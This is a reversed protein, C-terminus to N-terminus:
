DRVPALIIGKTILTRTSPAVRAAIKELHQKLRPVQPSNKHDRVLVEYAELAPLWESEFQTLLSDTLSELHAEDVGKERYVRTKRYLEHLSLEKESFPSTRAPTTTAEGMNWDGYRNSDAPGGFVSTIKEGVVQDFEGWEPQYLVESGFRVTCDKWTLLVLKQGHRIHGLFVGEITFGTTLELTARHGV